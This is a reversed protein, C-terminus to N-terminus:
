TEVLLYGFSRRGVVLWNCNREVINSYYNLNKVLLKQNKRESIKVLNKNETTVKVMMMILINVNICYFHQLSVSKFLKTDCLFARSVM